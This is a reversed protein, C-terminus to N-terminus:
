AKDEEKESDKEFSGLLSILPPAFIILVLQETTNVDNTLNVVASILLTCIMFRLPMFRM